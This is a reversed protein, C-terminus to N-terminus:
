LICLVLYLINFIASLVFWFSPKRFIRWKQALIRRFLLIISSRIKVSGTLNNSKNVQIELKKNKQLSQHNEAQELGLIELVIKDLEKRRDQFSGESTQNLFRTNFVEDEVLEILKELKKFGNPLYDEIQGKRLIYAKENVKSDIFENLKTEEDVSLNDKIKRNRSKIYEFIDSIEERYEEIDESALANELGKLLAQGDLSKDLKGIVEQNIKKFDVVFLEKINKDGVTRAYDLDAIIYNEICFSELFKRYKELNLKGNVEVVEVVEVKDYIYLYYDILKEFILKDSKGEVLVVKDAFFIKENNYSNIIHILDKAAM